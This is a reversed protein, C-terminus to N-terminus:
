FCGFFTSVDFFHKKEFLSDECKVDHAQSFAGDDELLGVPEKSLDLLLNSPMLARGAMLAVVPHM